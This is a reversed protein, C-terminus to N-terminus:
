PAVLFLPKLGLTHRRIRPVGKYLVLISEDSSLL